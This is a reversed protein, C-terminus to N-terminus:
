APAIPGVPLGGGQRLTRVLHAGGSLMNGVFDIGLLAFHHPVSPSLRLAKAMEPIAFFTLEGFKALASLFGELNKSEIGFLILFCLEHGCGMVSDMIVGFEGANRLAQGIGRSALTVALCLTDMGWMAWQYLWVFAEFDAPGHEWIDRMRAILDSNTGPTGFIQLALTYVVALASLLTEVVKLWTPQEVANVFAFTDLLADFAFGVLYSLVEDRATTVQIATWQLLSSGATVAAQVVNSMTTAAISTM